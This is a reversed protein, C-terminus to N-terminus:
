GAVLEANMRRRARAAGLVPEDALRQSTSEELVRDIPKHSDIVLLDVSQGYERLEDVPDGVSANAHVDGLAAIRRRAEEALESSEGAVNAPDRGYVPPRLAEFASLEAHHDAALTRALELARQSEVSRDYAVGIVRISAARSAYGAPAIV